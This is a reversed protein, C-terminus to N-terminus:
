RKGGGAYRSRDSCRVLNEPTGRPYSALWEPGMFWPSEAGPWVRRSGAVIRNCSHNQGIWPVREFRFLGGANRMQEFGEGGEVFRVKVQRDFAIRVAQDEADEVARM